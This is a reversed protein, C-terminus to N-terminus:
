RPNLGFWNIRWELFTEHSDFTLKKVLPSKHYAIAYGSPKQFISPQPISGYSQLVPTKVMNHLPLINVSGGDHALYYLIHRKPSWKHPSLHPSLHVSEICRIALNIISLRFSSSSVERQFLVVESTKETVEIYRSKM